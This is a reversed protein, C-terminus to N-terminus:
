SGGDAKGSPPLGHTSMSRRMARFVLCVRCGGEAGKCKLAANTLAGCKASKKDTGGLWFRVDERKVGWEDDVNVKACKLFTHKLRGNGSEGGVGFQMVRCRSDDM